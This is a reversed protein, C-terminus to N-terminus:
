INKVMGERSEKTGKKEEAGNKDSHGYWGAERRMQADTGVGHRTGSKTGGADREGHGAHIGFVNRDLVLVHGLLFVVRLVQAFGRGLRAGLAWAGEACLGEGLLLLADDALLQIDAQRACLRLLSGARTADTEGVDLAPLDDVICILDEAEVAPGRTDDGDVDAVGFLQVAAMRDADTGAHADRQAVAGRALIAAAADGLVHAGLPLGDDLSLLLGDRIGGFAGQLIEAKAKAERQIIALMQALHITRLRGCLWLVQGGTTLLLCRLRLGARVGRLLRLVKLRMHLLLAIGDNRGRRGCLAHRSRRRRIAGDSSRRHIAREGSMDRDLALLGLGALTSQLLRPLIRQMLIYHLIIHREGDRGALVARTHRHWWLIYLLRMGHLRSGGSVM